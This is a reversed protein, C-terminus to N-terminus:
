FPKVPKHIFHSNGMLNSSLSVLFNKGFTTVGPDPTCNSFVKVYKNHSMMMVTIHWLTFVFSNIIAVSPIVDDIKSRSSYTLYSTLMVTVQCCTFLSKRRQSKRKM